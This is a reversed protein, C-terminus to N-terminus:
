KLPKGYGSSTLVEDEEFVVSGRLIVREINGRYSFGEFPSYKAKSYFDEPKIKGEKKMDLILLDAHKGSKISGKNRLNFIRSPTYTCWRVVDSLSIFRKNVMTLLLKLTVELGPVGSPPNEEMKEETSHPAHDSAIMDIKGSKLARWLADNDRSTRLPPNTKCISGLRDLHKKNLFLHHPTVESTINNNLFELSDQTSIHCIHVKKNHRQAILSVKKVAEIEAESSRIRFHERYKERNKKIIEMDEAHVALLEAKIVTEELLDSSVEGLTGDLYIKSLREKVNRETIGYYVAFDCLARRKLLNLRREMMRDSIIAPKTNPMDMVATIGGALAAETGSHITEKYKQTFDRLHVHVDVLGPIVPKGRVNLVTEGRNKLNRGVKIIKEGEVLIDSETFGSPSFIRCNKILM